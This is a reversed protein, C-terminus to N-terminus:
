SANGEVSSIGPCTCGLYPQPLHCLDIILCTKGWWRLCVPVRATGVDSNGLGVMGLGVMQVSPDHCQAESCLVDM